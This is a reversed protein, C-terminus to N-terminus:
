EHPQIGRESITEQIAIDAKAKIQRKMEHEPMPPMANAERFALTCRTIFELMVEATEEIEDETDKLATLEGTDIGMEGLTERMVTTTLRTTVYLVQAIALNRATYEIEDARMLEVIRQVGLSQDIQKTRPM